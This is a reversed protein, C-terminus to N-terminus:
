VYRTKKISKSTVLNFAQMGNITNIEARIFEEETLAWKTIVSSNIGLGSFHKAVALVGGLQIQQTKKEFAVLPDKTVKGLADCYIYEDIITEGLILVSSNKLTKLCEIFIKTGFKNIQEKLWRVTDLPIFDSLNKQRELFGIRAYTSNIIHWCYKTKSSHIRNDLYL